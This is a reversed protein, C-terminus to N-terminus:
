TSFNPFLTNEPVPARGPQTQHTQGTEQCGPNGVQVEEDGQQTGQDHGGQLEDERDEDVSRDVPGGYGPWTQNLYIM